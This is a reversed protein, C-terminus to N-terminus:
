AGATIIINNIVKPSINDIGNIFAKQIPRLAIWLLPWYAPNYVIAQAVAWVQPGKNPDSIASSDPKSNNHHLTPITQM